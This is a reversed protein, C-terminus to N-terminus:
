RSAKSKECIASRCNKLIVLVLTKECLLLVMDPNAFYISLRKEPRTCDPNVHAVLNGVILPNDAVGVLTFRRGLANAPTTSTSEGGFSTSAPKAGSKMASDAFQYVPLTIDADLPPPLSKWASFVKELIAHGEDSELFVLKAIRNDNLLLPFDFWARTQILDLNRALDDNNKALAILFYTDSIKIKVSSLTEADTSDLKRMQPLGVDTFGTVPSGEAFSFKLDITHTAQLAPDTNKRLIMTARM